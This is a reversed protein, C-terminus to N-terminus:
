SMWAYSRSRCAMGYRVKIRRQLAEEEEFDIDDDIEVAKPTRRWFETHGSLADALNPSAGKVKGNADIVIAALEDPLEDSDPRFYVQRNAIWSELRKILRAGKAMPGANFPNISFHVGRRMMVEYLYDELIMQMAVNEPRIVQVDWEIAMDIIREVFDRVPLREAFSDLEFAVAAGRAFGTVVAASKDATPKRGGAVDVTLQRFLTKTPYWVDDIGCARKEDGDWRFRVLDEPKFSVDGPSTPLNLMQNAFRSPGFRFLANALTEETEYRWITDGDQKTTALGCEALFSHFRDDVRAGLVIKKDHPSRLMRDYFRGPWYTCVMVQHARDRRVWLGTAASIFREANQQQVESNEADVDILDDPIIIDYHGGVTKSEAGIGRISPEEFHTPRVVEVEAKNWRVSRIDPVIHGFWHMFQDSLLVSQIKGIKDKALEKSSMAILVRLSPDKILRWMPYSITFTSTKLHGRPIMIIYYGLMKDGLWEQFKNCIPLHLNPDVWDTVMMRTFEYLSGEMLRKKEEHDWGNAACQPCSGM